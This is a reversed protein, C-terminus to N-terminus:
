KFYEAYIEIRDATKFTSHVNQSVDAVFRFLYM